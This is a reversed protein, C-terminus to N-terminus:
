FGLCSLCNQSSGPPTNPTGALHSLALPFGAKREPLLSLSVTSTFVRSEERAASLSKCQALPSLSFHRGPTTSGKGRHSCTLVHSTDQTTTTAGLLSRPACSPGGRGRPADAPPPPKADGAQLRRPHGRCRGLHFASAYCSPYQPGRTLQYFDQSCRQETARPGYASFLLTTTFFSTQSLCSLCWCFLKDTNHGDKRVKILAGMLGDFYM